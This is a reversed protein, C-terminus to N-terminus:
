LSDGWFPGKTPFRAVTLHIWAFTLWVIPGGVGGEHPFLLFSLLQGGAWLVSLGCYATTTIWRCWGHKRIITQWGWGGALLFGVGYTQRPLVDFMVRYQTSHWGSDPIFVLALGYATFMSAFILLYHPGFGGNVVTRVLVYDWVRRRTHTLLHRRAADPPPDPHSM